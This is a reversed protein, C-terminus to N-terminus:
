TGNSLDDYWGDSKLNMSFWLFFVTTTGLYMMFKKKTLLAWVFVIMM